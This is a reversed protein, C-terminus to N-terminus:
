YPSNEKKTTDYAPPLYLTGSLAVGDQRQYHIVQKSVDKLRPFPNKFTTIPSLKGPNKLNRFYYNPYETKSQIQVLLTSQEELSLITEQKDITSSQYLRVKELSSLDISDLFPFQGKKSHGEGILFAKNDEIALVKRQYQNKRTEFRGPDSYIDQSNRDSVLRPSGAPNSPNFFYV